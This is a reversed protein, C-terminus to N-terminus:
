PLTSLSMETADSDPFKSEPIVALETLSDSMAEDKRSLAEQDMAVPRRGRFTQLFRQEQTRLLLLWRCRRKGLHTTFNLVVSVLLKEM